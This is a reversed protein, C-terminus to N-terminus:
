KNLIDLHAELQNLDSIEIDASIGLSDAPENKRNIWVTRFGYSKAGIIDWSNGSVFLIESKSVRLKKEVLGYVTPHPKYMRVEDVSIENAPDILVNLGNHESVQRLMRPSGNSLIALQFKQKLKSLSEKVDPFTNLQLWGNMLENKQSQTLSIELKAAAFILADKTVEWFDKYSDTVPSKMLSRLWTYDLQKSRWLNILATPITSSKSNIVNRTNDLLDNVDVLTGYSDFVIVKHSLHHSCRHAFQFYFFTEFSINGVILDSGFLIQM